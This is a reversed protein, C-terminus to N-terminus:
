TSTCCQVYQVQGRRESAQGVQSGRSVITLANTHFHLAIVLVKRKGEVLIIMYESVLLINCFMDYMTIICRGLIQEGAILKGDSFVTAADDLADCTKAGEFLPITPECGV